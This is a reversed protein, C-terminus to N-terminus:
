PEAYFQDERWGAPNAEIYDRIRKLETDNRIIHDHYRSQWAFKLNNQRAYKTVGIKYGRVISALNQSQPGFQNQPTNNHQLSALNQTEVARATRKGDRNDSKDIALIGHLHNPMLTFADLVVFPFHLPITSWCHAEAKGLRNPSMEGDFIEGFFPM